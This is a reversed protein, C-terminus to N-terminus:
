RIGTREQYLALGAPGGFKKVLLLLTSEIEGGERSDLDVDVFGLVGGVIRDFQESASMRAM